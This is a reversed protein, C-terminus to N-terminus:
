ALTKGETLLRTLDEAPLPRSFYNGQMADCGLARLFDLQTREEVGEAIVTLELTHAMAIITKVIEADSRDTLANRIFSKDIKLTHIPFRSLYSLSSYGTGFDDIAFRVGLESLSRLKEITHPANKMIAGETFELELSQGDSGGSEIIARMREVFDAETFQRASLNVAVRIDGLGAARWASAQRCATSAAWDGIPVILGTDEALAIFQPPALLGFEPHRWRILAEVGIIRGSAIDVQPQYYLVFQERTLAHRLHTELMLREFARASMDVSYFQFNNRGLEKAKYMATDANKLLSHGDHGDNPFLSVGISTTIFLEHGDIEFPTAFSDLIKRAVMSIDEVQAIDELLIAFEDGGLRAVTDGERVCNVLRKALVELFKDGVNHGLTDNINKFHDLDLFLVALIRNHFHGRILAQKLRDLLLVRNPLRTLDDHHALYQLQEQVQMRETIDKGTSIFHTIVGRENKLPTITKEEYYLSGDKRRNIFVESFVQGGLITQWLEEYFEPDHRGSKVLNPRRGVVEEHRFGTTREYAGNVYEIIGRRDTIMVSDATQAVASSLKRMTDEVQKRTTIDQATGLIQQVRGAADRAFVSDHGLFWHWTGDRHRLRYETQHVEGDKATDWHALLKPMEARNRPHLLKVLADDGFAEVEDPTYGLSEALPRNIYVTHQKLLDFVYILAPSAAAIRAAFRQSENLSQEARRRETIDQLVGYMRVPRGAEDHLLEGEGWVIHESGDPWVLRYEIPMSVGKTAASAISEKVLAKDDPHVSREIVAWIDVNPSPEIGHLRYTQPSWQIQNAEFDWIWSGLRAVEQAKTLMADSDRMAQLARHHEDAQELTLLKYGVNEALRALLAVEEDDFVNPKTAYVGIAGIIESGVVLPLGLVSRFGLERTAERWPLYRPDSETDHIVTPKGTRVATGLAGRGEPTDDCRVRVKALFADAMGASAAHRLEGNAWDAIGIWVMPYEARDVLVRCI